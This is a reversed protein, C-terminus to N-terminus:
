GFKEIVPQIEERRKISDTKSHESIVRASAGFSEMSALLLTMGEKGLLVFVEFDDNDYGKSFCM